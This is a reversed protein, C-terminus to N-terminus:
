SVEVNTLESIDLYKGIEKVAEIWNYCVAWKYCNGVDKMFKEQNKTLKNKDYKMEIYMGCYEDVPVPIFVDWVGSKLGEAKMKVATGVHRKGGNPIAHIWKIVPYKDEKLELFSFLAAQEDHESM